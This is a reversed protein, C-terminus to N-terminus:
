MTVCICYYYKNFWWTVKVKVDKISCYKVKSEVSALCKLWQQKWPAQWHSHHAPYWRASGTQQPMLEPASDFYVAIDDLANLNDSVEQWTLTM